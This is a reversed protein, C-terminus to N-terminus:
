LSTTEDRQYKPYVSKAVKCCYESDRGFSFKLSFMHQVSYFEALADEHDLVNGYISDGLRM